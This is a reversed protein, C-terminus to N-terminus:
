QAALSFRVVDSPDAGGVTGGLSQQGSLTGIDYATAFTSGAESIHFNDSAPLALAAAVGDNDDKPDHSCGSGDLPLRSELLEIAGHRYTEGRIARKSKRRVGTARNRPRLGM